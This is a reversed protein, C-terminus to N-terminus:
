ISIQMIKLSGYSKVRNSNKSATKLMRTKEDSNNLDHLTEFINKFVWLVKLIGLILARPSFTESWFIKKMNERCLDTYFFHGWPSPWKQVWPSLKFLIPLPESPSAVYWIDFSKGKHNWLLNKLNEDQFDIKLMHSRSICHALVM